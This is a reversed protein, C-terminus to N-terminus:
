KSFIGMRTGQPHGPGASVVYTVASRFLAIKAQFMDLSHFDRM